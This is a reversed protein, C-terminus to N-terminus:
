SALGRFEKDSMGVAPDQHLPVNRIEPVVDRYTVGSRVLRLTLDCLALERAEPYVHAETIALQAGPADGARWKALAIFSLWRARSDIPVYACLHLLGDAAHEVAPTWDGVGGFQPQSDKTVTDTAAFIEPLLAGLLVDRCEAREAAALVYGLDHVVSDAPGQGIESIKRPHLLRWWAREAEVGCLRTEELAEAAACEERAQRVRPIVADNCAHLARTAAQRSRYPSAGDVVRHVVTPVTEPAPVPQAAEPCCGPTCQVARWWGSAVRVAHNAQRGRAGLTGTLLHLFSDPLGTEYAVLVLDDGETAAVGDSVVAALMDACRVLDSEGPPLSSPADVRMVGALEGGRLMVAVISGDPVFGLEYPLFSLLSGIGTLVHRTM